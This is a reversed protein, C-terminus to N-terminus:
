MVSEISEVAEELKEAANNLSDIADEMAEFRDTSQLNEPMNDRAEEEQDCVSEMISTAENILVIARRLQRRRADNM